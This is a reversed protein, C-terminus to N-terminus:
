RGTLQQHFANYRAGEIKIQSSADEIAKIDAARPRFDRRLKFERLFSASTPGAM